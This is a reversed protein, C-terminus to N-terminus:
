GLGSEKAKGKENKTFIIKTVIGDNYLSGVKYKEKLRGMRELTFFSVKPHFSITATVTGNGSEAMKETFLFNPEKTKQFKEAM